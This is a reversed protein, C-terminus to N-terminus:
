QARLFAELQALEIPTLHKTHGMKGDSHVLLDQLTDYRGDHFWPGAAGVNVLSPTNFARGSGVDHLAGDTLSPGSHCGSCGARPSAFIKAGAVVSPDDTSPIHGGSGKLYAVLAELEASELGAGGLRKLTRGLHKELTPANGMWSFPATDATRGALMITRRPGDPTSWVLGDDRRDPHCSACARGDASIRGDGTRHFLKRGLEIAGAPRGIDFVPSPPLAAIREVPKAGPADLPPDLTIVSLVHDFQSWVVAQGATPDLAIGTPGGAVRWRTLEARGPVPSTADYAIVSDIGQCALLLTRAKEDIVAARPLLCPEHRDDTDLRRMTAPIPTLTRADVVAVTAVESAPGNGDGGYGSVTPKETEGPDVMVEPLFLRGPSVGAAGAATSKALAFGQCTPLDATKRRPKKDPGLARATEDFSRADTGRLPVVRPVVRGNAVDVVSLHSGVAHSVFVRTGDDSVVATRPERPLDLVFRRELDSTRIASLAHGFGSTVYLTGRDPSLSLGVPERAVDLWARDTGQAERSSFGAFITLKAQGRLLTAVRGDDLVLIASPSDGAEIPALEAHEDLDFRRIVFADPDAVFAIRHGAVRALAVTAGVLPRGIPVPAFESTAAELSAPTRSTAGHRHCGAASVLLVSAAVLTARGRTGSGM